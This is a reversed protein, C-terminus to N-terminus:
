MSGSGHDQSDVFYNELERTHTETQTEPQVLQWLRTLQTDRGHVDVVRHGLLFKVVQVAALLGYQVPLSSDHSFWQYLASSCDSQTTKKLNFRVVSTMNPPFCTTTHPYPSTLVFLFKLISSHHCRLLEVFCNERKKCTPLPQQAARFASPAM